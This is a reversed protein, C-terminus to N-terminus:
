IFDKKRAQFFFTGGLLLLILVIEVVLITVATPSWVAVHGKMKSAIGPDHTIGYFFAQLFLNGFVMAGIAWSQSESVIAVALLLTYATFLYTVVLVMFPIIGGANGITFLALAALLIASWPILFILLNALIKATTYEMYSIPLSMVFPLTQEKREGVVTTMALHIGVAILVTILLVLGAFFGGESGTCILLLAVAGGALYGIIPGRLFHWDKLILQKVITTNM